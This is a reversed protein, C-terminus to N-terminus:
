QVFWDWKKYISEQQGTGIREAESDSDEADKNKKKDMRYEFLKRYDDEGFNEDESARQMQENFLNCLYISVLFFIVMAIMRARLALHEITRENNIDMDPNLKKLDKIYEYDLVNAKLGIIQLWKKLSVYEPSDIIYSMSLVFVNAM